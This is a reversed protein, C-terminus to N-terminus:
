WPQKQKLYKLDTEALVARPFSPAEPLGRGASKNTHNVSQQGEGKVGGGGEEGGVMGGHLGQGGRGGGGGGRGRM